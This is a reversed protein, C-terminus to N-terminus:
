PSSTKDAATASAKADYRDMCNDVKKDWAQREDSQKAALVGLLGFADAGSYPEPGAQKWCDQLAAGRACGTLVLLLILTKKM